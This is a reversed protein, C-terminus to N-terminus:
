EIFGWGTPARWGFTLASLTKFSIGNTQFPVILVDVGGAAFSVHWTMAIAEDLDTETCGAKGRARDQRVPLVYFGTLDTPLARVRDQLRRQQEANM